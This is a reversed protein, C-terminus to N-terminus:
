QIETGSQGAMLQDLESFHGIRVQQVGALKADFANKLKPLMGSHIVGENIYRETNKNNLVSFVEKTRMDKLVGLQEFCYILQIHFSTALAQAMVSAMTDANTNLMSGEGDHTLAPVVLSLEQNLLTQVLEINVDAPDVDGAFGYDIDRVPRKVAKLLNGDAGTLGIVNAGVAQLKAVIKKNLLGGYVMTVVDLTDQDTIRRGAVMKAEVGLKAGIESAVKGGGHILIKSGELKAFRILFQDLATEDDIVNGGVKIINLKKM